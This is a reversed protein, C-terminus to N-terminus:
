HPSSFFSTPVPSRPLFKSIAPETSQEISHSMWQEISQNITRDISANVWWDISQNITRNISSNIWLDIRRDNSQNISQNVVHTSHYSIPKWKRNSHRPPAPESVIAAFPTEERHSFLRSFSPRQSSPTPCCSLEETWMLRPPAVSSLRPQVLRRLPWRPFPQEVPPLIRM